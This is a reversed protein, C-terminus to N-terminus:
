TEIVKSSVRSTARLSVEGIRDFNFLALRCQEQFTDM